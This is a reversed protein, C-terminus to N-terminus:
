SSAEHAFEVRPLRIPAEARALCSALMTTNIDRHDIWSAVRQAEPQLWTQELHYALPACRLCSDLRSGLANASAAGGFASPERKVCALMPKIARLGIALGLERFPLRSELPRMLENSAIFFDLSRNADALLTHLIADYAIDGNATLDFLEATAILLGGMGLPDTTAWTAEPGSCMSRMARIEGGIHPSMPNLRHETARIRSLTAFGDLPDHQGMSAVLPRTLDISMKWYLRMPAGPRPEYVFAATAVRALEIAYGNWVADSTALSLQSLARMWRTLYHFYQGDRDWELRENLPEGVAREPLSKGIRLGGAVPNREGDADSLGSIWGARADSPRHRGLNDHVLDALKIADDLYQQRKTARYLGLLALVAYADTWLYRRSPDAPGHVGTRTSFSSM